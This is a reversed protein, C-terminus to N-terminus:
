QRLRDSTLILRRYRNRVAGLLNLVDCLPCEGDVLQEALMALWVRDWTRDPLAELHEALDKVSVCMEPRNLTDVTKNGGSM